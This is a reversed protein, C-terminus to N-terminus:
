QLRITPSAARPFGEARNRHDPYRRQPDLRQRIAQPKGGRDKKQWPALFIPRLHKRGPGHQPFFCPWHKSWMSVDVCRSDRRPGRRATKKPFIAKLAACCEDIISPYASDFTIRLCWVGRRGASIYGDGLYLGLLYAYPGDPLQSFDHNAESRGGCQSRDHCRTEGRRWGSVTRRPIGTLEEIERDSHGKATLGRVGLFESESRM